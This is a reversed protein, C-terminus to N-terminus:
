FNLQRFISNIFWFTQKRTSLIVAYTSWSLNQKSNLENLLSPTTSATATTTTEMQTTTSTGTQTETQFPGTLTEPQLPTTKPSTESARRPSISPIANTELTSSAAPM